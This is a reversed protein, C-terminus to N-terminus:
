KEKSALVPSGIVEFRPSPNFIEWISITRGNSIAAAAMWRTGPYLKLIFLPGNAKLSQIQMYDWDSDSLSWEGNLDPQASNMRWILHHISGDWSRYLTFARNEYQSRFESFPIFHWGVPARLQKADWEDPIGHLKSGDSIQLATPPPTEMAFNPLSPACALLSISSLAPIILRKRAYDLFRM